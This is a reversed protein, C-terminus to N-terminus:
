KHERAGKRNMGAAAALVRATRAATDEPPQATGPAAAGAGAAPTAGAAAPSGSEALHVLRSAPDASSFAIPERPRGTTSDIAPRANPERPPYM